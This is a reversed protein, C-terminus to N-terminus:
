TFLFHNFYKLHDELSLKYLFSDRFTATKPDIDQLMLESISKFQNQRKILWLGLNLLSNQSSYFGLHM